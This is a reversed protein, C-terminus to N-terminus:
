DKGFSESISLGATCEAPAGPDLNIFIRPVKYLDLQDKYLECHAKYLDLRRELRQAPTTIKIFILSLKIKIFIM